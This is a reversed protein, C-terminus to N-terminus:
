FVYKRAKEFIRFDIETNENKKNKLESHLAIKAFM